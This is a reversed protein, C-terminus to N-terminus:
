DDDLKNESIYYISIGALLAFPLNWAYFDWVAIEAYREDLILVLVFLNVLCNLVNLLVATFVPIALKEPKVAYMILACIPAIVQLWLSVTINSPWWPFFLNNYGYDIIGTMRVIVYNTIMIVLVAVTYRILFKRSVLGCQNIFTKLGDKLGVVPKENTEIKETKNIVASCNPCVLLGHLETGCKICFNM